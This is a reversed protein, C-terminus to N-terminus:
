LPKIEKGKALDEITINKFFNECTKEYAEWMKVTTCFSSRECKNPKDKLCKVPTFSERTCTLIDYVTYEKPSKTLKYGGKIGNKGIIYKSRVLDKIFAQVYRQSINESETIERLTIFADKQTKALYVMIRLLYRGRTSIM